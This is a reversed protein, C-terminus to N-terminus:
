EPSEEGVPRNWDRDCSRFDAEQTALKRLRITEQSEDRPPNGDRDDCHVDAEASSLAKLSTSGSRPNPILVAALAILIGAALIILERAM